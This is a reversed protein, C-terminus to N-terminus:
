ACVGSSSSLRWLDPFHDPSSSVNALWSTISKSVPAKVSQSSPQVRRDYRARLSLQAGILIDFFNAPRHMPFTHYVREGTLTKKFCTDNSVATIQYNRLQSEDTAISCEHSGRFFARYLRTYDWDKTTGPIYVAPRPFILQADLRGRIRIIVIM